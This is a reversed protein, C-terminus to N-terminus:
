QNAALIEKNQKDTAALKVQELHMREKIEIIQEKM